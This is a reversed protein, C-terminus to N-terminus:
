GREKGVYIWLDSTLYRGLVGLSRQLIVCSYSKGQLLGNPLLQQENLGELSEVELGAHPCVAECTLRYGTHSRKSCSVFFKASPCRHM